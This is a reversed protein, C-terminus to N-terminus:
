REFDQPKRFSFYEVPKINQLLLQLESDNHIVHYTTSIETIDEITSTRSYSNSQIMLFPQDLQYSLKIFQREAEMLDLLEIMFGERDNLTAPYDLFYKSIRRDMEVEYEMSDIQFATVGGEGDNEFTGVKVNDILILGMFYIGCDTPLEVYQDISIGRIIAM